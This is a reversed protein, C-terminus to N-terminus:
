PRFEAAIDKGFNVNIEGDSSVEISGGSPIKPAYVPIKFKKSLANAIGEPDQGTSCSLLYCKANKSFCKHIDDFLYHKLIDKNLVNFNDFITLYPDGHGAIMLIDIKGYKAVDKIVKALHLASSIFSYHIKYKERPIEDVEKFLKSFAMNWDAKPMTVLVIKRKDKYKHLNETIENLNIKGESKWKKILVNLDMLDAANLILNNEEFIRKINDIGILDILQFFITMYELNRAEKAIFKNWLESLLYLRKNFNNNKIFIEKILRISDAEHTNHIKKIGFLVLATIIDRSFNDIIYISRRSFVTGEFIIHSNSLYNITDIIEKIHKVEKKDRLQDFWGKLAHFFISGQDQLIDQPIIGLLSKGAIFLDKDLFIGIDKGTLYKYKYNGFLTQRFFQVNTFYVRYESSDKLLELLSLLERASISHDKFYPFVFRNLLIFIKSGILDRSFIETIAKYDEMADLSLFPYDKLLREYKEQITLPYREYIEISINHLLEIHSHLEKLKKEGEKTKKLFKFGRFLGRTNKASVYLDELVQRDKLVEEFIEILVESEKTKEIFIDYSFIVKLDEIWKILYSLRKNIGPWSEYFNKFGYNGPYTESIFYSLVEKLNRYLHM